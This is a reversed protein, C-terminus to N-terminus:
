FHTIVLRGLRRERTSGIVLLKHLPFSLSLYGSEGLQIVGRFLCEHSFLLLDRIIDELERFLGWLWGEGRV